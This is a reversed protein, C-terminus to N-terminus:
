CGYKVLIDRVYNKSSFLAIKIEFIKFAYLAFFYVCVISHYACILIWLMKKIAAFAEVSSTM